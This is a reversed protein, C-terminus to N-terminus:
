ISHATRATRRKKGSIVIGAFIALGTLTLYALSSAGEPASMPPPDFNWQNRWNYIGGFDQYAGTKVNIVITDWVLVNGVLTQWSFGCFGLLCTAKGGSADSANIGNFAGGNFSLSINSFSDTTSNFTFSGSVTSGSNGTLTENSFNDNSDALAPLCV